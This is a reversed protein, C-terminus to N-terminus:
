FNLLKERNKFLARYIEGAPRNEAKQLKPDGEVMEFADNRAQSLINYDSVINAFRFNPLGSQKTGFIDGMGRLKLDTEAISFGDTTSVMAELRVKATPSIPPYSVLICYADKAGRGIRGRLQHLTSLGFREAHHIIMINASPVDIGVEIVTTSVLVDIKKQKFRQMIASKEAGSMRGHIIDVCYDLFVRNKLTEYLNVADQLNLKDSEDVLPCVVYVQNGGKIQKKLSTYIKALSGESRWLTKVVGRHPPMEDIVSIDLDGYLTIALSRPIPTASLSLTDVNVGKSALTARQVVGFKHQEDVVVLGLKKFLVDGELLAHTGIVVDVDKKEIERKTKKKEKSEGGLVLAIKIEKPLLKRINEFHQVALIETPALVVSQYSNSWCLLIAFVVVITKGSGVDGQIFRNMQRQSCMDSFIEKAVRVQASTLQFPLKERLESILKNEFHFKVGSKRSVRRKKSKAFMLQHYFLEEYVFRAKSIRSNENPFHLERLADKLTPFRYKALLRTPLSEKIFVGYAKFGNYIVRRFTSMTLDKTTPYVPLIVRNKWFDGKLKSLIEIQPHVVQRVGRFQTVRGALWVEDSPKLKDVLWKSFRFWTGLLIDEGDSFVVNLQGRNKRIRRLDVSVVKLVISVNTGVELNCIRQIKDRRIYSAPLHLFLDYITFIKLKAFLKARAEGVGKLYIISTKLKENM